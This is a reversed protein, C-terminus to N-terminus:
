ALAARCLIINNGFMGQMVDLTENATQCTAGDQQFWLEHRNRFYIVVPKRFTKLMHRYSEGNVTETVNETNEFWNPGIIRDCMIACLVTVRQPHSENENFIRPNEVRWYRFNQKSVFGYLHFHAKMLWWCFFCKKRNFFNLLHDRLNFGKRTNTEVLSRRLSFETRIVSRAIHVVFINWSDPARRLM